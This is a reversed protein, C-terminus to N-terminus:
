NLVSVVKRADSGTLKELESESLDKLSAAFSVKNLKDYVLVSAVVEAKDTYSSNYASKHDSM